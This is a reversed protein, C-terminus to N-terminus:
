PATPTATRPQAARTLSHLPRRGPTRTLRVLCPWQGSRFRRVTSTVARGAWRHGTLGSPHMPDEYFLAAQRISLRLLDISTLNPKAWPLLRQPSGLRLAQGTQLHGSMAGSRLPELSGLPERGERVRPV